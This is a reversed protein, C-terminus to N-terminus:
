PCASVGRSITANTGLSDPCIFTGSSAVGNVWNSCGDFSTQNTKIFNIKTCNYFMYTYCDDILIAAPLIPASTLTTCGNFMNAYCSSALTTAPLAPANVLSTCGYFMRYYCHDKLVKAPLISVSVLSTCGEFM